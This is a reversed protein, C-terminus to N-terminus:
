WLEAQLRAFVEERIGRYVAPARSLEAECGALVDSVAQTLRAIDSAMTRCEVTQEHARTEEAQWRELWAWESWTRRHDGGLEVRAGAARGARLGETRSTSTKGRCADDYRRRAVQLQQAERSSATMAPRLVANARERMSDLLFIRKDGPAAPESPVLEGAEIITYLPAASKSRDRSRERAVTALSPKVAVHKVTEKERRRAERREELASQRAEARLAAARADGEDPRLRAWERYHGLADAPRDMKMLCDGALSHVNARDPAAALVARLHVLARPCDKQALASQAESYAQEVGGTAETQAVAQGAFLVAFTGGLVSIGRPM